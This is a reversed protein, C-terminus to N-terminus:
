EKSWKKEQYEDVAKTINTEDIYAQIAVMWEDEEIHWIDMDLQSLFDFLFQGFRWDPNKKWAKELKQLLPDIRAPNRMRRM